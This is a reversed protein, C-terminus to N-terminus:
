RSGLGPLHPCHKQITKCWVNLDLQRSLHLKAPMKIDATLFYLM